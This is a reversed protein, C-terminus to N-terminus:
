HSFQWDCTVFAITQLIVHDYFFVVLVRFEAVLFIKDKRSMELAGPKSLTNELNKFSAPSIKDNGTHLRTFKDIFCDTLQLVLAM